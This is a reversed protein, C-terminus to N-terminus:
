VQGGIEPPRCISKRNKRNKRWHKKRWHKKQTIKTLFRTTCVGVNSSSMAARRRQGSQRRSVAVAGAM